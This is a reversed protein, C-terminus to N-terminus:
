GAIAEGLRRKLTKGKKALEENRTELLANRVRQRELEDLVLVLREETSDGVTADVVGEPLRLERADFGVVRGLEAWLFTQGQTGAPGIVHMRDRSRLPASWRQVVCALDLDAGDRPATVVVHVDFGALGDLLLAIEGSTAAALHPQSFVVTDKGKHARRCLASWTGEVERRRYGWARHVRRIEVTARFMEETSRAPCRIGLTALGERSAVLASGLFDSGTHPPGIHVFAKRKAM